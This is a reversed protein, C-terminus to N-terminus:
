PSHCASINGSGNDFPDNLRSWESTAKRSYDYGLFHSLNTALNTPLTNFLTAGVAPTLFSAVNSFLLIVFSHDFVIHYSGLNLKFFLHWLDSIRALDQGLDSEFGVLGLSCEVEHHEAEFCAFFWWLDERCTGEDLEWGIFFFIESVGLYVIKDLLFLFLSLPHVQPLLIHILHLSTQNGM